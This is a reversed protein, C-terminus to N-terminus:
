FKRFHISWPSKKKKQWYCINICHSLLPPPPFGISVAGIWSKLTSGQTYVCYCVGWHSLEQKDELYRKWGLPVEKSICGNSNWKKLRNCGVKWSAWSPYYIKLFSIMLHSERVCSSDLPQLYDLFHLNVSLQLSSLARVGFLFLFTWLTALTWLTWHECHPWYDSRHKSIKM